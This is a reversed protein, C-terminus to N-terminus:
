PSVECVPGNCPCRVIFFNCDVVCSSVITFLVIVPVTGVESLVCRLATWGGNLTLTPESLRPRVNPLVNINRFVAYSLKIISRGTFATLLLCMLKVDVAM